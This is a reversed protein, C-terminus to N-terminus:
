NQTDTVYTNSVVLGSDYLPSIVSLHDAFGAESNVM